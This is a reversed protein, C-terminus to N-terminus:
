PLFAYGVGWRTIIFEPNESDPEIKKRLRSIHVFLDHRSRQGEHGYLHDLLQQYTLVQGKHRALYVLLDYETPTLDLRNGSLWVEQADFNILLGRESFRNPAEESKPGGRRLLARLRAVLEPAKFPKTIYDDAGADLAEILDDQGSKSTVMLIPADSWRRINRCINIGDMGPLMWDLLIVDPPMTQVVDLATTGEPAVEVQFGEKSLITRLLAQFDSEDEVVLVREGDGSPAQEVRPERELRPEVEVDQKPMVPLTFSFRAGQEMDPPPSELWMQGGHAQVIKRSIYLGLGSGDRTDDASEYKEFILEQDEEPVGAGRDTVSVVVMSGEVRAEVLINEDEPAYRAANDLLNIIVEEVRDPDARLEPLDEPLQVDVRGAGISGEVREIAESILSEPSCPEPRLGLHGTEVRTLALSRDVQRILKDTSRDIAELFERAMDEGWQGYNALLATSHGKLAALPARLDHALISLLELRWALQNKKETVDQVLGGWGILRGDEEWVPFFSVGMYKPPDSDQAIEISPRENVSVVAQSLLQQVVEPEAARELFQTFLQEYHRGILDKPEVSLLNALWLNFQTIQGENNVLFLGADLGEILSELQARDRRVEADLRTQESIDTFVIEISQEGNLRIPRASLLVTMEEAQNDVVTVKRHRIVREQQLEELLGQKADDKSILDGLALSSLTEQDGSPAFRM